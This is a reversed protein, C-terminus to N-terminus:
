RPKILRFQKGWVFTSKTTDSTIMINIKKCYGKLHNLKILYDKSVNRLKNWRDEGRQLTFERSQEVERYDKCTTSNQM